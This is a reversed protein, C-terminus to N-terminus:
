QGFAEGSFHHAKKVCVSITLLRAALAELVLDRVELVRRSLVIDARSM